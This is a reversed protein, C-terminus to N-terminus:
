SCQSGTLELRDVNSAYCQDVTVVDLRCRDVNALVHVSNSINATFSTPRWRFDM